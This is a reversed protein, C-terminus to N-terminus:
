KTQFDWVGDWDSGPPNSKLHAIRGLYVDSASDGPATARYSEFARKATEWDQNRYAALGSLFGDAAPKEALLEFIRTPEAKGKVRILDLERSHIAQGAHDRARESLIIRTGYTKNAGELRSGLNVPDGMVTFSRSVKSGISGVIMDGTSIGIRLDIDLGDSKAGLETAVDARFRNLNEMAALAANCALAAHENPATFPPGWFAMVADGMFKDVVGKYSSIAETMHSFFGNIMRVLDHPPLKESISTFGKLDIFMVTMERREGARHTLEPNDLLKTVIRPDMYKGFTDKILEKMKLDAIMNNFSVTLQGVEDRTMVPMETNLNGEAVAKTGRVLNRINRVLVFTIAAALGLGLLAALMTLGINIILLFKENSDARQVAQDAVTEAYRRLNAIEVDIADQQENIDPLLAEFAATDGAKHLTLLELSHKEFTRYEREVAALTRNLSYITEPPHSSREEAKFLGHANVFEENVSDGLAKIRAIAQAAEKKIPLAFLRQLLLGQELIRVNIRGITDSLPLHKGAVTDLEESIEATLHISFIAVAVMLALVLVAIGYIKQAINLHM